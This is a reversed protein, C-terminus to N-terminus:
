LLNFLFNSLSYIFLQLNSLIFSSFLYLCSSFSCLTGDEALGWVFLSGDSALAMSYAFGAVVSVLTRSDGFATHPVRPMLRWLFSSLFLFNPDTTQFYKTASTRNDNHGLGLQGSLL